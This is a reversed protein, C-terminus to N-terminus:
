EKVVDIAENLCLNLSVLDQQTTKMWMTCPCGPPRRGNESPSATRIQKANSKDPMRAIYGFLSLHRAQVAASLHPQVTKWRVDDNWV